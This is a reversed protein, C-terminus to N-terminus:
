MLYNSYDKKKSNLNKDGGDFRFSDRIEGSTCNKHTLWSYREHSYRVGCVYYLTDFINQKTSDIASVSM